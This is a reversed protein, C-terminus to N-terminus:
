TRGAASPLFNPNSIILPLRRRIHGTPGVNWHLMPHVLPSFISADTSGDTCSLEQTFGPM